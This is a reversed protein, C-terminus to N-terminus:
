RSPIRKGSRIGLSELLNMPSEFEYCEIRAARDKCGASPDQHKALWVASVADDIKGENRPEHISRGVSLQAHYATVLMLRNGIPKRPSASDTAQRGDHQEIGLPPRESVPRLAGSRIM